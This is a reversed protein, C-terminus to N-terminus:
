RTKVFQRNAGLKGSVAAPLQIGKGLLEGGELWGGYARVAYRDLFTEVGSVGFM